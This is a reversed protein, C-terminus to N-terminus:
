VAIRLRSGFNSNGSKECCRATTIEFALVDLVSLVLVRMMDNLFDSVVKDIKGSIM